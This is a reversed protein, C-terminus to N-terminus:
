LLVRSFCYMLFVGLSFAGFAYLYIFRITPPVVLQAFKHHLQWPLILLGVSTAILVLGFIWM